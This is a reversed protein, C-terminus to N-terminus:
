LFSAQFADEIDAEDSLVARAAALVMGGHRRIVAELAVADGAIVRKLLEADPLEGFREASVSRSIQGVLRNVASVPMISESATRQNRGYYGCVTFAVRSNERGSNARCKDSIEHAQAHKTCQGCM